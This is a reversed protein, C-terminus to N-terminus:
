LMVKLMCTPVKASSTSSISSSNGIPKCACPDIAHTTDHRYSCSGTHDLIVSWRTGFLLWWSHSGHWALLQCPSDPMSVFRAEHDGVLVEHKGGILGNLTRNELLTHLSTGHVTAVMSVGKRAIDAMAAVERADYVEDVVIVQTNDSM